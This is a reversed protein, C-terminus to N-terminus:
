RRLDIMAATSTIRCGVPLPSWMGPGTRIANLPKKEALGASWLRPPRSSPAAFPEISGHVQMALERTPVLVLAEINPTRQQKSLLNSRDGAAPLGPDQGHGTPRHCDSRKRGAGASHGRSPCSHSYHIPSSRTKASACCVLSPRCIYDHSDFRKRPREPTERSAPSLHSERSHLPLREYPKQAPFTRSCPISPLTLGATEVSQRVVLSGHDSADPVTYCLRRRLVPRAGRKISVKTCGQPSRKRRDGLISQERGERGSIRRRFGLVWRRDKTASGACSPM